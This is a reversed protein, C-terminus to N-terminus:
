PNSISTLPTHLTTKTTSPIKKSRKQRAASEGHHNRRRGCLGQRRLRLHHRLRRPGNNSPHRAPTTPIPIRPLRLTSTSSVVFFFAISTCNLYVLAASARFRGLSICDLAISSSCFKKRTRHNNPGLHLSITARALFHFYPQLPRFQTITFRSQQLLSLSLLFTYSPHLGPSAVAPFVTWLYFSLRMSSQFTSTLFAESTPSIAILQYHLSAVSVHFDRTVIQSTTVNPTHVM